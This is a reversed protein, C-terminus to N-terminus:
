VLKEDGPDFPPSTVILARFSGELAHPTERPVNVLEGERVDLEEEGVFIKGSGELVYYAKQSKENVIKKRVSGSPHHGDVESVVADFNSDEPADFLETIETEEDVSYSDGETFKV